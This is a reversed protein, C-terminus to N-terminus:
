RARGPAHHAHSPSNSSSSARFTAAAGCFFQRLIPLLDLIEASGKPGRPAAALATEFNEQVTLFSFIECGQPVHGIGAGARESRPTCTIDRGEWVISAAPGGVGDVVVALFSDIHLWHRPQPQCQREPQRGRRCHGRNGLRLRLDAGERTPAFALAADLLPVNEASRSRFVAEAADPSVLQLRGLAGRLAMRVRNNIRLAETRAADVQQGNM